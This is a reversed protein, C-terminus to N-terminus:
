KELSDARWVSKAQAALWKQHDQLSEIDWENYEAIHQNICYGSAQLIQRKEAFPEQGPNRSAPLIAMNGLRDIAPEYNERGFAAQWHDEPNRPLVHELTLNPGPEENASSLHQEIHRLLFMIKKSSQRSLMTKQTFDQEFADDEPYVPALMRAIETISTRDENCIANAIRNYINEQENPSKNGIINYRISVVAIWKTIKIFNAADFHFYAAMLMSLPTKVNFLCLVELHQKVGAYIGNDYETWFTANHNQLANYVPAKTALDDLYPMVQGTETIRSKLVRYLEKKYPLKHKMGIYSRLFATFNSEGLQQLIKDWQAEFDNFASDDLQPNMAMTSLLYNKLLDPASLQIGRANLTEFVLYANLDDKVTITTFMLGDAIGNIVSALIDGSTSHTTLKKQFFEFTKNMKRNTQTINRWKPIKTDKILTVFHQNNHRNLVLKASRKLTVTDLVGLYRARYADLRQQNNDADDDKDIMTQFHSLAAAILLSITTLRQQGDIIQFSKGDNSQFVLYGMFHQIRSDLMQEIDEWLEELNEQEWSYDRQFRPIIYSKSNDMVESFMRNEPELYLKKFKIPQTLKNM